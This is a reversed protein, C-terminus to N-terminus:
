SDSITRRVFRAKIVENNAEDYYHSIGADFLEKEFGRHVEVCDFGLNTYERCREEFSLGSFGIGEGSEKAIPMSYWFSDTGPDIKRLFDLEVERFSRGSRDFTEALLLAFLIAWTRLIM